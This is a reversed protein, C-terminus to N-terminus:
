RVNDDPAAHNLILYFRLNVSGIFARHLLRLMLKLLKYFVAPVFEFFLLSVLLCNLFHSVATALNQQLASCIDFINIDLVIAFDPYCYVRLLVNESLAHDSSCFYKSFLLLWRGDSSTM